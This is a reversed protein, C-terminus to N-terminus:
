SRETNVMVFRSCRGTEDFTVTWLNDFDGLEAYRGIGTIVVDWGDIATVSWEFEWGGSQWDWRSRWGEVIGTRGIWRTDFPSEHYEADDTFLAEIDGPANSTWAAVYGEVWRTISAATPSGPLADATAPTM